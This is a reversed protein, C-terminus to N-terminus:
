MKLILQSFREDKEDVDFRLFTSISRLVLNKGTLLGYVKKESPKKLKEFGSM